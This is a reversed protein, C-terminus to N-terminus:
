KFGFFKLNDNNNKLLILKGGEQMVITNPPINENIITAGMSIIVNNGIASNGLIKSYGYIIVGDGITPRKYKTPDESLVEYPAIHVHEYLVLGKGYISHPTIITGIPHVPMFYEGIQTKYFIDCSCRIRSSYYIAKSLDDSLENNHIENSFRYCLCLFHDLFGLDFLGRKNKSFWKNKINSNESIIKILVENFLLIVDNNNFHEEVDFPYDLNIINKFLKYNYSIINDM